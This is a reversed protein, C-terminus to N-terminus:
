PGDRRMVLRLSEIAAADRERLRTAGSAALVEQVMSLAFPFRELVFAGLRAAVGTAAHAPVARPM